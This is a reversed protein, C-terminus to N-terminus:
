VAPNKHLYPLNSPDHKDKAGKEEIRSIIPGTYTGGNAAIAMQKKAEKELLKKISAGSHVQRIKPNDRLVEQAIKSALRDEASTKKEGTTSADWDKKSSAERDKVDKMRSAYSANSAKSAHSNYTVQSQLDDDQAAAARAARRAEKAKAEAENAKNWDDAMKEKWDDEQVLEKVRDQIVGLAQRVEYDEM